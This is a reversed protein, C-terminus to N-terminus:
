LLFDISKAAERTGVKGIYPIFKEGKEDLIWMNM